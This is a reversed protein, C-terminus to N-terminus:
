PYHMGHYLSGIWVWVVYKSIGMGVRATYAVAAYILVRVGVSRVIYLTSLGICATYWIAHTKWTIKNKRHLTMLFASSQIGIFTNFALDLTPSPLLHSALALVQYAAYGRKLLLTRLRKGGGSKGRVTTEGDVGFVETVMDAMLHISGVALMRMWPSNNLTWWVMVSRLTFVIAHLRYEEWIM